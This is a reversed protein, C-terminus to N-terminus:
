KDGYTKVFQTLFEIVDAPITEFLWATGYKYGCEPCPEALLGKPNDKRYTWTAMNNQTAPKTDDLLKEDWKAKRQHECGARMDNLHWREWIQFLRRADKFTPKFTTFQQRFLLHKLEDNCQGGCIINTRKTNWIYGCISLVLGKESDKLEIDVTVALSRKYGYNEGKVRGLEITTKGTKNQTNNM